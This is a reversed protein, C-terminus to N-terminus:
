TGPPTSTGTTSRGASRASGNASAAAAEPRGEGRVRQVGALDARVPRDEPVGPRVAEGQVGAHERVRVLGRRPGVQGAADAGPGAGAPGGGDGSPKRPHDNTSLKHHFDRRADAVQRAGARGERPGQGQEQQGEAQPVPGAAGAQAEEGGAAPVEARASRPGTTWCPSTAESRPRDRVRTRDAPLPRRTVEVVFSAFFRGAADRIVTVSSPAAPCTVPGACRWTGSRRCGCGGTTWCRSGRQQRHVPDGAALGEAVPVPAAAVKPGKRKGHGLRLLEPVGHEPGRPGAPPGGVSVEGLWAREPTHRRRPSGRPCSRTRPHVAGRGRIRGQPAALADNFVVRACGFARALAARQVGTTRLVSPLFYVFSCTSWTDERRSTKPCGCRCCRTEAHM